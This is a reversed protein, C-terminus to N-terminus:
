RLRRDELEKLDQKNADHNWVAVFLTKDCPLETRNRGNEDVTTIIPRIKYLDYAGVKTRFAVHIEAFKNENDLLITSETPNGKEDLMHAKVRKSAPTIEASYRLPLVVNKPYIGLRRKWEVFPTHVIEFEISEIRLSRTRFEGNRTVTLLASETALIDQLTEPNDTPIFFSNVPVQTSNKNGDYLYRIRSLELRTISASPIIEHGFRYWLFAAVICSLAVVLIANLTRRQLLPTRIQEGDPALITSTQCLLNPFCYSAFIVLTFVFAVGLLSLFLWEEHSMFALVASLIPAAVAGIKLATELKTSTPTADPM